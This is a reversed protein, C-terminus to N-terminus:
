KGLDNPDACGLFAVGWRAMATSPTSATAAVVPRRAAPTERTEQM